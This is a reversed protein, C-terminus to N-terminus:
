VKENNEKRKRRHRCRYIPDVSELENEVFLVEGYINTFAFPLKSQFSIWYCQVNLTYFTSSVVGTVGRAMEYDQKSAIPSLKVQDGSKFKPENM